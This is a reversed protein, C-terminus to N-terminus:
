SFLLEELYDPELGFEGAILDELQTLNAGHEIQDYLDSTFERIASEAEDETMGDRKILADKMENHM